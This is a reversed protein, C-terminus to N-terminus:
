GNTVQITQPRRGWDPVGDASGLCRERPDESDSMKVGSPAATESRTTSRIEQHIEEQIERPLENFVERDIQLWVDPESCGCIQSM